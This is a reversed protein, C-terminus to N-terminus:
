SMSTTKGRQREAPTLGAEVAELDLSMSGRSESSEEKTGADPMMLISSKTTQPCAAASRLSLSASTACASRQRERHHESRYKECKRGARGGLM